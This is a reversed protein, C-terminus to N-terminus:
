GTGGTGITQDTNTVYTVMDVGPWTRLTEQVTDPDAGPKFKVLYADPHTVVGWPRKGPFWEPLENSSAYYVTEAQPMALLRQQIADKTSQPATPQMIVATVGNNAPKTLARVILFGGVGVLGVGLCAAVIIVALMGPRKLLPGNGPPPTPQYPTQNM